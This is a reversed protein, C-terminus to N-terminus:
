SRPRRRPRLVVRLPARRARRPTWRSRSWTRRARTASTPRARAPRWTSPPPPRCRGATRPWGSRSRCALAVAERWPLGSDAISPSWPPASAEGGRRPDRQREHDDHPQRGDPRQRARALHRGRGRAGRELPCGLAEAAIQTLVTVMGQGIETTGVAVTVSGDAPCSWAPAPPTSTSAWRAWAWATTAPPSASAAGCPGPTARTSRASASGTRRPRWRHGAGRPLRRERDAQARHHDRRRDAAREQPRLMSRTWPRAAGGARRARERVRVGGAARRLRPLRRLAGQAHAGVRSTSADREARPLARLRARHRPLAGGALADRLRRRRAPLRGRLRDPPRRAHRGLQVQIRAPHRKSMVAM